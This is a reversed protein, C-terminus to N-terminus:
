RGVDMTIFSEHDLTIRTPVQGILNNLVKQAIEKGAKM